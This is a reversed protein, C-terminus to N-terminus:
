AAGGSELACGGLMELVEFDIVSKKGNPLEVILDGEYIKRMGKPTAVFAMAPQPSLGNGGTLDEIDGRVGEIEKGYFWQEAKIVQGNIRFNKMESM